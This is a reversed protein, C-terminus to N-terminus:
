LTCSTQSNHSEHVPNYTALVPSCCERRSLPSQVFSFTCHCSPKFKPQVQRRSKFNLQLKNVWSDCLLEHSGRQTNKIPISLPFRKPSSLEGGGGGLSSPTSHLTLQQIFQKITAYPHRKIRQRTIKKTKTQKDTLLKNM